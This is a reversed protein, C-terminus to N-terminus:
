SFTPPRHKRKNLRHSDSHFRLLRLALRPILSLTLGNGNNNHCTICATLFVSLSLSLSLYLRLFFLSLFVFFSVGYAVYIRADIRAVM